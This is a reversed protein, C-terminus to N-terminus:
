SLGLTCGPICLEVGKKHESCLGIFAICDQGEALTGDTYAGAQESAFLHEADRM